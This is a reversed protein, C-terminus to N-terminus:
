SQRILTRSTDGVGSIVQNVMAMFIAHDFTKALANHSDEKSDAASKVSTRLHDSKASMDEKAITVQDRPIAQTSSSLEQSVTAVQDHVRGMVENAMTNLPGVKAQGTPIMDLARFDAKGPNQTGATETGAAKESVKGVSTNNASALSPTASPPVMTVPM